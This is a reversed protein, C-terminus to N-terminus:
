MIIIIIKRHKQISISQMIRLSKLVKQYSYTSGMKVIQLETNQGCLTNMPKM